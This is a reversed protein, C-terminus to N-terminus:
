EEAPPRPKALTLRRIIQQVMDSRMNEFLMVEEQQKALIQADDYALDRTLVLEDAPLWEVQQQDHAHFSAHYLLQYERVRGIGALSLIKKEQFESAIQLIVDAEEAKEVLRVHNAKLAGRLEIAFPSHDNPTQLYLSGFPLAAQGRLHFGCATLALLSLMLLARAITM